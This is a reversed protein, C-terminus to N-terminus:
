DFKVVLTEEEKKKKKENSHKKKHASLSQETAFFQNCFVGDSIEYTCVTSSPSIDKLASQEIISKISDMDIKKAIKIAINLSSVIDSRNKIFTMYDQKIHNLKNQDIYNKEINNNALSFEHFSYIVDIAQQITDMNYNCNHIYLLINNNEKFEVSFNPKTSIGSNQSVLIGCMNNENIDRYFKIIEETNVNRDYEKNELLIDPKGETKLIFDGAHSDSSTRQVIYTPFRKCLLVELVNESVKGKNSSNKHLFINSINNVSSKTEDIANSMENFNVKFNNFVDSINHHLNDIHNKTKNDVNNKVNNFENTIIEQIKKMIESDNKVFENSYNKLELRIKDFYSEFEKPSKEKIIDIQDKIENFSKNTIIEIDKTLSQIDKNSNSNISLITEKTSSMLSNNNEILRKDFNNIIDKYYSEESSNMSKELDCLMEKTKRTYEVNNQLIMNQIDKTNNCGDNRIKEVENLLSIKNDKVIEINKFMENLLQNQSLIYPLIQATNNEKISSLVYEYFDINKLMFVDFDIDVNRNFFEIIRKNETSFNM